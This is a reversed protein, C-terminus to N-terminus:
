LKIKFICTFVFHCYYVHITAWYKLNGLIDYWWLLSARKHPSLHVTAM